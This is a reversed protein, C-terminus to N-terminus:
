LCGESTSTGPARAFWKTWGGKKDDDEGLEEKVCLSFCFEDKCEALTEEDADCGKKCFLRGPDTAGFLNNCAM